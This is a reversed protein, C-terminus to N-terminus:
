NYQQEFIETLENINIDDINIEEFRDKNFCNYPSPLSVENLVFHGNKTIEKVTYYGYEIVGPHPKICKIYM